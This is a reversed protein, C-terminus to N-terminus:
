KQATWQKKLLLFMASEYGYHAIFQLWEPKSYWGLLINLPLGIIGEKNNLVTSSLDFAKILIISDKAIYGADKLASIGEHLGYGLLYGAQLILYVLTINFVTGLNVKILSLFILIALALAVFLGTFISEISYQGAFAFIAIEVGERAVMMASVLFVGTKSLNSDIQNEVHKAMNRGHNIMWVIFTTVLTLAALSAASEWMKSMLSTNGFLNGMYTLLAGLFLSVLIGTCVGYGVYKKFAHLNLKGLYHIIIAVVLFAELGERFGMLIGPLSISM